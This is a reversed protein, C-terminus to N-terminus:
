FKLALGVGNENVAPVMRFSTGNGLSDNYNLIAEKKNKMAHHFFISGIIGTGAFAIAPATVSKDDNENVLFWIATGFNAAGAIMGGMMQKKSKEWNMQAVQSESMIKDIEKWTLKQRDQYFEPGWMGSFSTIEQASLTFAFLGCGLTLIISKLNKM